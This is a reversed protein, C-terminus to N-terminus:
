LFAGKSRLRFWLGMYLLLYVVVSGGFVIRESGVLSLTELIVLMGVGVFPALVFGMAFLLFFTISRRIDVKKMKSESM